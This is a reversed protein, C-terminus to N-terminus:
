AMGLFDYSIKKQVVAVVSLAQKLVAQQLHTLTKPNVANDAPEGQGLGAGAPDAATAAAVDLGADTRRPIM